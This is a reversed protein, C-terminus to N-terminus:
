QLGSATTKVGERKGNKELFEKNKAIKDAYKAKEKEESRKQALEQLMQMAARMKEEPIDAEEGKLGKALGRMLEETSFENEKFGAGHMGRGQQYGLVYSGIAFAEKETLKPTEAPAPAVPPAPPKGPEQACVLGAGIIGVSALAIM